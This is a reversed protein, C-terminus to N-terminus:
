KEKYTLCITAIWNVKLMRNNVDGTMPLVWVMWSLIQKLRCIQKFKCQKCNRLNMGGM